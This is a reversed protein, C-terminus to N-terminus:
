MTYCNANHKGWVLWGLLINALVNRMMNSYIYVNPLQSLLLSGAACVSCSYKFVNATSVIALM